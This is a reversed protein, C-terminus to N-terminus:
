KTSSPPTDDPINSVDISMWKCIQKLSVGLSSALAAARDLRPLSVGNEWDRINRDSVGVQRALAPQTLGISERQTRLPSKQESKNNHVMIVSSFRRFNEEQCFLDLPLLSGTHVCFFPCAALHQGNGPHM